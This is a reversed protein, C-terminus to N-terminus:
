WVSRFPFGISITMMDEADNPKKTDIFESGRVNYYETKYGGFIAAFFQGQTAHRSTVKDLYALGFNGQFYWGAGRTRAAYGGSVFHTQEDFHGFTGANVFPFYRDDLGEDFELAINYYRANPDYESQSTIQKYFGTGLFVVDSHATFPIIYIGIFFPILLVKKM